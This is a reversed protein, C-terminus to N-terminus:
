SQEKYGDHSIMVYDEIGKGANTFGTKRSTGDYIIGVWRDPEIRVTVNIKTVELTGSIYRFLYYNDAHNGSVTANKPTVTATGANLRGDHTANDAGDYDFQISTLSAGDPLGSVSVQGDIDAPLKM